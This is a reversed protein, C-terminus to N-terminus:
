DETIYTLHGNFFKGSVNWLTLVGNTSLSGWTMAVDSMAADSYTMIPFNIGTLPTPLGSMATVNNGSARGSLDVEIVNISRRVRASEVTINSSGNTHSVNKVTKLDEIEADKPETWPYWQSNTYGRKKISTTAIGIYLQIPRASTGIVLMFGYSPSYPANVYEGWLQYVGTTTITNLDTGTAILSIQRMAYESIKAQTLEALKAKDENTYDNTSLGKGTEKDVKSDIADAEPAVWPYWQSNTYGRKKIYEGASGFFIQIPKGSTGVVFMFGYSPTYPANIYEGWLQYVGTTTITNLDTGTEILEIQHMAYESIKAQTLESVRNKDANTYDNTSLGKGSVKDVKNSSLADVTLRDAKSSEINADADIRNQIEDLILTRIETDDYAGEGNEGKDGKEGKLMLIKVNELRTTDGRM